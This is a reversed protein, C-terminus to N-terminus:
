GTGEKRQAKKRPDGYKAIYGPITKKTLGSGPVGMEIDISNYSPAEGTERLRNLWRQIAEARRSGFEDVLSTEVSLVATLKPREVVAPQVPPQPQPAPTPQEVKKPAAPKPQAAPKPEVTMVQLSPNGLKRAMESAVLKQVASVKHALAWKWATAQDCKLLSQIRDARFSLVPHHLRAKAAVKLEDWTKGSQELRAMGTYSHWVFPGFVSALGLVVGVSVNIHTVGHWINVAAAFLAFAWMRRSYKGSPLNDQVCKAAAAGMVWSIAEVGIPFLYAISKPLHPISTYYDIQGIVAIAACAGAVAASGLFIRKEKAWALPGGDAAHQPSPTSPVM